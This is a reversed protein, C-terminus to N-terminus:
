EPVEVSSRVLDAAANLDGFYGEAVCVESLIMPFTRGTIEYYDAHNVIEESHQMKEACQRALEALKAQDIGKHHAVWLLYDPRNCDAWFEALTKEGTYDLGWQCMYNEICWERFTM